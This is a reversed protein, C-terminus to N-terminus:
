LDVESKTETCKSGGKWKVCSLHLLINPEGSENFNAFGLLRADECGLKALEAMMEAGADRIVQKLEDPDQPIAIERVVEVQAPLAVSALLGVVALLCVVALFGNVLKELLWMM